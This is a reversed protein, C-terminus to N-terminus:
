LKLNDNRWKTAFEIFREAAADFDGHASVFSFDRNISLDKIDIIKLSGRRLEERISIVSLLAFTGKSAELYGKIGETAGIGM